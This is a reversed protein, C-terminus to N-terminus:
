ALDPKGYAKTYDRWIVHFVIGVRKVYESFDVSRETLKSKLLCIEVDSIQKLLTIQLAKTGYHLDAVEEHSSTIM